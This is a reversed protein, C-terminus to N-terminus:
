YEPNNHKYIINYGFKDVIKKSLNKIANYSNNSIWIKIIASSNNKICISLGNVNEYSDPNNLVQETVLLISLLEWINSAMDKTVKISWCGGHKNKPDEWLPTVGKRMLFFHLSTIGGIININNFINWFDQIDSITYIQRYGDLKWNNPSHHYWLVWQDNLKTNETIQESNSTKVISTMLYNYYQNNLDNNILITYLYM